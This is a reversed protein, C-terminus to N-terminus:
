CFKNFSPFSTKLTTRSMSYQQSDTCATISYVTFPCKQGCCSSYNKGRSKNTGKGEHEAEGKTEDHVIEVDSVVEM